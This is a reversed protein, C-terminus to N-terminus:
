RFQGLFTTYTINFGRFTSQTDSDFRLTANKGVLEVLSTDNTYILENEDDNYANLIDKM